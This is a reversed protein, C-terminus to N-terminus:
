RVVPAWLRQWLCCTGESALSPVVAVHHRGHVALSEDPLFRTFTVRPDAGLADRMWAEEPGEGAFCFAVRDLTRLLSRAAEIMIRTGRYEVFRRAFLVSITEGEHRGLDPKYGEPLDVFNPITSIRGTDEAESQTRYWNPFNYDVCVRNACHEFYQRSRWAVYRKSFTPSVGPLRGIGYTFFRSPLDWGIGHQISVARPYETPVSAHDAGFILTGENGDVLSRARQYLDSHLTSRGLSHGPVFGEVSLHEVQRQFPHSAAQLLVPTAGREHILRSLQWLYTEVGGVRRESGDPTLFNPYIIATKM